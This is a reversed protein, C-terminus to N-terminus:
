QQLAQLMARIVKGSSTAGLASGFNMQLNINGATFTDLVNQMTLDPGLFDLYFVGQPLMSGLEQAARSAYEFITEVYVPANNGVTFNIANTALLNNDQVGNSVTSDYVSFLLRTIYGSNALARWNITAAGGLATNWQEEYLSNVYGFDPDNQPDVPPDYMVRTLLNRPTTLTVTAAGTTLYSAAGATLSFINFPSAQSATNPTFNVSMQISPDQLDWIGVPGGLTNIQQSLPLFFPVNWLQNAPAAPQTVETGNFQYTTDNGNPETVLDTYPSNGKFQSELKYKLMDYWALGDGSINIIGAQVNSNVQINTMINFPGLKDVVITGGGLTFTPTGQVILFLSDLYATQLVQVTTQTNSQWPNASNLQRIKRTVNQSLFQFNGM